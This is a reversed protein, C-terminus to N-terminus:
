CCVCILYFLLFSTFVAMLESATVCFPDSSVFCMLLTAQKSLFFHKMM